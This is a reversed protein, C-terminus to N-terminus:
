TYGHEPIVMSETSRHLFLSPTLDVRLVFYVCAMETCGQACSFLSFLVPLLRTGLSKETKLIAAAAGGCPDGYRYGALLSEPEPQKCAVMVTFLDPPLYVSVISYKLEKFALDQRNRSGM